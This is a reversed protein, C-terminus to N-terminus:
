RFNILPRSHAHQPELPHSPAFSGRLKLLCLEPPRLPSGKCAEQRLYYSPTSVSFLKEIFLPMWLLFWTFVIIISILFFFVCISLIDPKPRFMPLDSRAFIDLMRRPFDNTECPWQKWLGSVYPPRTFLPTFRGWSVRPWLLVQRGTQTARWM